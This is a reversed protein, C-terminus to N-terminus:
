YFQRDKGKEIFAVISYIAMRKVHLFTKYLKITTSINVVMGIVEYLQISSCLYETVM